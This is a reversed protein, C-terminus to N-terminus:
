KLFYSGWSVVVILQLVAVPVLVQHLMYKKNWNTELFRWFYHWLCIATGFLFGCYLDHDNIGFFTKNMSVTAVYLVLGIWLSGSLESLAIEGAIPGAFNMPWSRRIAYFAIVHFPILFVSVGLMFSWLFQTKTLGFVIASLWIMCLVFRCATRV